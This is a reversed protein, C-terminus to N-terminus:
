NEYSDADYIERYYQIYDATAQPNIDWYYRCLKKFLSLMQEEGCFDLLRDLLLQITKDDKIKNRILTDVEPLYLKYAQLHLAQIQEILPRLEELM